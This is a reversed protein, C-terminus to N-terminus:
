EVCAEVLKSGLGKGQYDEQVAISKIEALDEWCIGLGGVAQIGPKTTTDEVVFYDRMHDYLESLPRPLLVGKAGYFALIRHIEHIDTMLAKRIVVRTQTSQNQVNM